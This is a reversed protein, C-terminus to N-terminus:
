TSAQTWDKSDGGYRENRDHWAKTTFSVHVLLVMLRIRSLDNRAVDKDHELKLWTEWGCWIAELSVM